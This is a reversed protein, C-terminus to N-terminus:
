KIAEVVGSEPDYAKKGHNDLLYKENVGRVTRELAAYTTSSEGPAQTYVKSFGIKKFVENLLNTTWLFKHGHKKVLSEFLFALADTEVGPLGMQKLANDENELFPRLQDNAYKVGLADNEFKILQDITPTVVRFVGGKKLIRHAEKAFFIGEQMTVHEIVHETFICDVSNDDFNLKKTIDQDNETLATWGEPATTWHGGFILRM